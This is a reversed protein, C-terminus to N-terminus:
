KENIPKINLSVEDGAQKESENKLALFRGRLEMEGGVLQEEKGQM